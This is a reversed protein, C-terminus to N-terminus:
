LSHLLLSCLTEKRPNTIHMIEAMGSNVTELGMIAAIENLADYAAIESIFVDKTDINGMRKEEEPFTADREPSISKIVYKPEPM